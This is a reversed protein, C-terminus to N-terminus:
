EAALADALRAFDTIALQEGRCEVALDSTTMARVIAARDIDLALTLTNALTKRRYAFAARVVKWFLALDRPAVQPQPRRLLTLVTSDVKPQPYFAQPGLTFALTVEMAYQVAISLSGYAATAPKAALRAAVDKQIMLTLANPGRQMQTLALILPTAINYPLNGAACWAGGQAYAGFDYRLADAEVIAADSLTTDSRLLRVLAPDIELATVDYDADLLVRTLAGTGAGIELVRRIGPASEVCLAAIRQSANADVLFNQGLRKQPRLGCAALLARPSASDIM